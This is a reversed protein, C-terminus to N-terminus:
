GTRARVGSAARESAGGGQGFREKEDKDKDEEHQEEDCVRMGLVHVDCVNAHVDCV